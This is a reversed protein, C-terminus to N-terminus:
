TGEPINHRRTAQYMCIHGVSKDMPGGEKSSCRYMHVLIYPLVTIYYGEHDGSSFSRGHMGRAGEIEDDEIHDDHHCKVLPVFWSAWKATKEVMKGSGEQHIWTYEQYGTRFCVCNLISGATYFYSCTLIHWLDTYYLATTDWKHQWSGRTFTTARLLWSKVPRPNLMQPLIRSPMKTLSTSWLPGADSDPQMAGPVNTPDSICVVTLLM